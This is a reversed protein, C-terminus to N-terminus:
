RISRPPHITGLDGYGLRLPSLGLILLTGSRLSPFQPQRAVFFTRVPGRKEGVVRQEMGLSGVNTTSNIGERKGIQLKTMKQCSRQDVSGLGCIEGASDVFARKCVNLGVVSLAM